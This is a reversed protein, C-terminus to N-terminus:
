AQPRQGLAATAQALLGARLSNPRLAAHGGPAPSGTPRALPRRVGHRAGCGPHARRQQALNPSSFPFGQIGAKAPIVYAHIAAQAPIVFAPRARSHRLSVKARIVFPGRLGAVATDM